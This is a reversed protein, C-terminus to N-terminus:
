YLLLVLVKLRWSRAKSQPSPWLNHFRSTHCSFVALEQEGRGGSGAWLGRGCPSIGPQPGAGPRWGGPAFGPSTWCPRSQQRWRPPCRAGPGGPRGAPGEQDETQAKLRSTADSPPPVRPCWCQTGVGGSPGHAAPPQRLVRPRLPAAPERAVCPCGPQVEERVGDRTEDHPSVEALPFGLTFGEPRPPAAPLVKVTRAPRPQRQVRSEEPHRRRLPPAATEWWRVRVM